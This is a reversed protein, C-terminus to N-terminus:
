KKEEKKEEKKPKEKPKEEKKEEKKPAPKEEKKAEKPKEKKPEEKKEEEKKAPKEEKKEEKPKEEVEAKPLRKIIDQVTEAAGGANEVAISSTGVKLGIAKGLEEKTKVYCYPVGKEQCLIPIHVVVEEPSVDEAIVVLQATKREIAKTTENVGKKIKGSDKVMSLAELVRPTLDGPMEFKVYSAVNVGGKTM